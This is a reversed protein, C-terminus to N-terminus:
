CKFLSIALEVPDRRSSLLSTSRLDNLPLLMTEEKCGQSGVGPDRGLHPFFLTILAFCKCTYVSYWKYDDFGSFANSARGNPLLCPLQASKM